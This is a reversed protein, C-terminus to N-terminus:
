DEENRVIDRRADAYWGPGASSNFIIRGKVVALAENFCEGAEPQFSSEDNLYGWPHYSRIQDAGGPIGAVYSGNAFRLQLAPQKDIARALPFAEQLWEPQRKYLCKAYDILQVIKDEKQCQMLVGRYPTKMAEMTLYAVCAWSLMMDRSKEFWVVREADMLEFAAKLYPYQPFKEYPSPRGEELWHENYTETYQTVWTYADCTAEGARDKLEEALQLNKFEETQSGLQNERQRRRRLLAETAAARGWSPDVVLRYPLNTQEM